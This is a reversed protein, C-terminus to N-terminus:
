NVKANGLISVMIGLIKDIESIHYEVSDIFVQHEVLKLFKWMNGSTVVGYIVPIVHNEQQNFQQAAVMEAICEGLGGIINENKAEVLAVVPADIFLQEPSLSIIFDCFGTLNKEVDVDFKIGSFLSIQYNLKKRVEVLVNVIILESRAKESGIALALPINETLLQQLFASPTIPASDAFLNQNEVHHLSFDQLVKKLTFDSYAM